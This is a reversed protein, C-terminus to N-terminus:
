GILEGMVRAASTLALVVPGDYNERVRAKDAATYGMCDMVIIDPKQATLRNVAADIAADDSGPAVATAFVEVGDAQWKRPLSDVQAELPVLVGMRGRTFASRVVAELVASPQLLMGGFSLGHFEGTCLLLAVQVGETDLEALRRCVGAQVVKHSVDVPTGDRLLTFLTDAGDEPRAACIEARSLDDLAGKHIIEVGAPLARAVEAETAPRPSQGITVLAITSKM